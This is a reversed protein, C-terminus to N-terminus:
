PLDTNELEEEMQEGQDEVTIRNIQEILFHNLYDQEKCDPQKDKEM